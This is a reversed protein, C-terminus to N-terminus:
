PLKSPLPQYAWCTPQHNFDSQRQRIAAHIAEHSTDPVQHSIIQAVWELEPGIHSYHRCHYKLLWALLQIATPTLPSESTRAM